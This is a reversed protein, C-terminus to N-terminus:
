TIPNGSNNNLYMVVQWRQGPVARLMPNEMNVIPVTPGATIPVSGIPRPTAKQMVAQMPASQSRPDSAKDDPGIPKGDPRVTGPTRVQGTKPDRFEPSGTTAAVDLASKSQAQAAPALTMGMLTMGMLTMGMLTVGMLTVGMLTVGMPTMGLLCLS